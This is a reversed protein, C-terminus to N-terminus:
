SDRHGGSRIIVSSIRVSNPVMIQIPDNDRLFSYGLSILEVSVIILGKPTNLQVKDGIRIPRYLVLSLGAMLNGLTNQVALGLGVSVVIVGALWATGLVRLQPVLHAYLVFGVLYALIQGLSSAFSIGTEDSIHSQVHREAKIVLTAMAMSAILFVMGFFVAGIVTKPDFIHHQVVDRLYNM